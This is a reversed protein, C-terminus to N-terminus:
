DEKDGHVEEYILKFIAFGSSDRLKMLCRGRKIAEERCTTTISEEKSYEGGAIRFRIFYEQM